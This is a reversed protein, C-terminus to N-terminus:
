AEEEILEEALEDEVVGFVKRAFFLPVTIFSAYVPLCVLFTIILLVALIAITVSMEKREERKNIQTCLLHFRKIGINVLLFVLM